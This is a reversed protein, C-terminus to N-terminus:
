VCTNEFLYQTHLNSVIFYSLNEIIYQLVVDSAIIGAVM